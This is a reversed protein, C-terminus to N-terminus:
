CESVVVGNKEEETENNSEGKHSKLEDRGINHSLSLSVQSLIVAEGVHPHWILKYWFM